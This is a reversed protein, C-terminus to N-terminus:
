AVARSPADAPAAPLLVRFTAGQGAGASSAEVSGGDTVDLSAAEAKGGAGKIAEVTGAANDGRAAAVIYAGRSALVEAIGRGIGRSAGTVIVVKQSLDFM